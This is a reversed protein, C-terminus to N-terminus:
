LFNYTWYDRDFSGINKEDEKRRRKISEIKMTMYLAYIIGFKGTLQCNTKTMERIAPPYNRSKKYLFSGGFLAVESIVGIYRLTERKLGAAGM